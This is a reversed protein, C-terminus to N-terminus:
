SRFPASGPRFLPDPRRACLNQGAATSRASQAQPADGEHNSLSVM